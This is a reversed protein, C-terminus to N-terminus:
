TTVAVSDGKATLTRAVVLWAYAAM